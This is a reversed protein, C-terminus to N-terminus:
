RQSPNLLAWEEKTFNVTVDEFSLSEQLQSQANEVKMIMEQEYAPDPVSLASIISPHTTAM